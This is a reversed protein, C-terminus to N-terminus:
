PKVHKKASQPRIAELLQQLLAVITDGRREIRSLREEIPDSQMKALLRSAEDVSKSDLQLRAPDIPRLRPPAGKATGTASAAETDDVSEVDVTEDHMERAVMEVDERTFERKGALYGSLLIRDCVANIRRPVGGTAKYISEYAEPQFRPDGSWSVCKLRHEIYGRTEDADMPGIHCAAIVRQRLQLMQPSQMTRRFEPQGVLFSQLLAHTELQFNSLMRLEEIARPTLNQAEDVILLARKGQQCVSVLFAELALLLDSKEIDKTRLGFSSAILRLTDEADLQTSVLNGAVVQKPDLKDLLSRVITTKGAGVEGTVVIFGENQHIGYELYAMARRHQRSGFFFAPDPNLQFPKGTFGYFTEYMPRGLVYPERDCVRQARVRQRFKGHRAFGVLLLQRRGFRQDQARVTTSVNLSTNFNNSRINAFPGTSVNSTTTSYSAGAGLTTQAGVRHSYSAGVGTQTNDQGFQLAPPLVNGSGSIAESKSYFVSMSVSNRTGILVLSVNATDQLTLTAAYFNVPSVLSAPLGSQALFQDVAQARETPDPIRTTFAADVFQSVAAGAPIALALQPYSNIGRAANASLAANPLRHKVQVSYSSGFFRHEWFGGVSTRRRRIGNAVSATSRERRIRFPFNTARTDSAHGSRCNRTLRTLFCYDYRNYDHLIRARCGNRWSRRSGNDYYFRNYELTWGWPNVPSRM